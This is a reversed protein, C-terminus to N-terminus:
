SAPKEENATPTEAPAEPKPEPKPEAKPEPTFVLTDNKMEFVGMKQGLGTAPEKDLEAFGECTRTETVYMKGNAAHRLIWAGNGPSYIEIKTRLSGKPMAHRRTCKPANSPVIAYDATDDWPWTTIRILSLSHSSSGDIEMTAREDSCGALAAALILFCIQWLKNAAM